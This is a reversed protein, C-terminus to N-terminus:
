HSMATFIGMGSKLLSLGYIESNAAQVREVIVVILQHCFACMQPLKTDHFNEVPIRILIMMKNFLSAPGKFLCDKMNLVSTKQIINAMGVCLLVGVLLYEDNGYVLVCVQHRIDFGIILNKQLSHYGTSFECLKM